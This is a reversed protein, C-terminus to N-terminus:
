LHSATAYIMVLGDLAWGEQGEARREIKRETVRSCEKYLEHNYIEKYERM